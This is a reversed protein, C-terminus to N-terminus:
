KEAALQRGLDEKEAKAVALKEKLKRSRNETASKDRVAETQQARLCEIRGELQWRGAAFESTLAGSAVHEAFASAQCM